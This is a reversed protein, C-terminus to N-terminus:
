KISRAFSFVDKSLVLFSTDESVLKLRFPTDELNSSRVKSIKTEVSNMNWTEGKWLTKTQDLLRYLISINTNLVNRTLLVTSKYREEQGM